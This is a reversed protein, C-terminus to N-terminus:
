PDCLCGISAVCSATATSDDGMVVETCGPTATTRSARERACPAGTPQEHADLKQFLGCANDCQQRVAVLALRCLAAQQMRIGPDSCRARGNPNGTRTVPGVPTSDADCRAPSKPDDAVLIGQLALLLDAQDLSAVVPSLELRPPQLVAPAKVAAEQAGALLPLASLTVIWVLRNWRM